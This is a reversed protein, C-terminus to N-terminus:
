NVHGNDHLRWVLKNWQADSYSAMKSQIDDTLNISNRIFENMDARADMTNEWSSPLKYGQNILLSYLDVRNM